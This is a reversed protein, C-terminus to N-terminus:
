THTSRALGAAGLDKWLKEIALYANRHAASEALWVDLEQMQEDTADGRDLLLIWEIAQNDIEDPQSGTSM